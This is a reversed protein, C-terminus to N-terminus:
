RLTALVSGFPIDVFRIFNHARARSLFVSVWAGRGASTCSNLRVDIVSAFCEVEVLLLM